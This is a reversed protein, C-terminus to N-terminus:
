EAADADDADVDTDTNEDFVNWKVILQDITGDVQMHEIAINIEAELDDNNKAIAIGYEDTDFTVGEAIQLTDDGLEKIIRRAVPGDTIVASLKGEQLAAVADSVSTFAFVDGDETCEDAVDMSVTGTQAGIKLGMLGANDTVSSDAPVICVQGNTLYPVSFDVIAQRQETIYFGSIGLDYKGAQVDALIDDFDVSVLEIKVGLDDALAAALDADFGVINGSDDLSEFPAFDPSVAATIVDTDAVAAGAALLMLAALFVAAFKKM